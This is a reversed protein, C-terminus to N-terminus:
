GPWVPAHSGLPMSPRAWHAPTESLRATHKVATLRGFGSDHDEILDSIDEFAIDARDLGGEIRGLEQLWRATRALAVRVHWSGGETARRGLAAMAAFAM